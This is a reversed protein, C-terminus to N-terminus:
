IAAKILKFSQTQKASKITLIYLGTNLSTLNLKTHFNDFNLKGKFIIQGFQNTIQYIIDGEYDAVISKINVFDKVPNPFIIWNNKGSENLGLNQNLCSEPVVYSSKLLNEVKSDVFSANTTNEVFTNNIDQDDAALFDQM